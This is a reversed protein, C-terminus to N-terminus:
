KIFYSAKEMIYLLISFLHYCLNGNQKRQTIKLKKTICIYNYM